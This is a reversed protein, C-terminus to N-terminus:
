KAEPVRRDMRVRPIIAGIEDIVVDSRCPGIQNVQVRDFCNQQYVPVRENFFSRIVSAAENLAPLGDGTPRSREQTPKPLHYSGGQLRFLRAPRIEADINDDSRKRM